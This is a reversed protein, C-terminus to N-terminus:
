KKILAAYFERIEKQRSEILSQQVAKMMTDRESLDKIHSFSHPLSQSMELTPQYIPFTDATPIVGKCIMTDYDKVDDWYSAGVSLDKDLMFWLFHHEQDVGLVTGLGTPTEVRQHTSVGFQKLAGESMDLLVMKGNRAKYQIWYNLPKKKEKTPLKLVKSNNTELGLEQEL